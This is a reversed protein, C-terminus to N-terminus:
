RENTNGNRWIGIEAPPYSRVDWADQQPLQAFDLSEDAEVVLVSGPPSEIVIREILGLMDGLRERYLAYPPSCFVLWSMPPSGDALEGRLNNSLDRAWFFTDSRALTSVEGLGLSAINAELVKATPLHREVFTARSAGRSLAELGLAGTGAFLDVAHQGVVSPGVLNFVAERVRDKMPRTVQDGHYALKSGRLRGGIIRLTTPTPPVKPNLAPKRPM